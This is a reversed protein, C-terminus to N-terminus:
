VFRRQIAIKGHEALMHCPRCLTILNVPDNAQLYHENEGYVYGFERFPKIHHVEFSRRRSSQRKGCHQCIYKDRRRIERKRTGWNPGYYTSHGGKWNSNHKDTWNQSQWQSRCARNCFRGRGRQVQGPIAEFTKGCQECIRHLRDWLPSQEGSLYQTRWKGMCTLSCCRRNYAKCQSAYIRFSKGCVVCLRNERGGKWTASQAGTVHQAGWRGKCVRSCFHHTNKKLLYPKRPISVGCWDCVVTLIQAAEDTPNM